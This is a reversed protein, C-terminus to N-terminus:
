RNYIAVTDKMQECFTIRTNTKTVEATMFSNRLQGTYEAPKLHASWEAFSNIKHITGRHVLPIMQLTFLQLRHREKKLPRHLLTHGYSVSRKVRAATQAIIDRV